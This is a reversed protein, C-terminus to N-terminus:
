ARRAHKEAPPEAAKVPDDVEILRAIEILGDDFVEPAALNPPEHRHVFRSLASVIKVPTGGASSARNCPGFL